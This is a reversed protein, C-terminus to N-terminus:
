ESHSAEDSREDSESSAQDEEPVNAPKPEGRVVRQRKHNDNESQQPKPHLKDSRVRHQVKAVGANTQAAMAANRELERIKKQLEKVQKRASVYEPDKKITNPIPIAVKVQRSKELDAPKGAPSAQM